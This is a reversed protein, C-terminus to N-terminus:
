KKDVYKELYERPASPKKQKQMVPM